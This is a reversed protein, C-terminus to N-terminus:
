VCGILMRYLEWAELQCHMAQQNYIQRQQVIYPVVLQQKGQSYIQKCSGVDSYAAHSELPCKLISPLVMKLEPFFCQCNPWSYFMIQVLQCVVMMWCATNQLSHFYWTRLFEALHFVDRSGVIFYITLFPQHFWQLLSNGWRAWQKKNDVLNSGM